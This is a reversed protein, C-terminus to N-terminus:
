AALLRPSESGAADFKNNIETGRVFRLVDRKDLRRRCSSQATYLQDSVATLVEVVACRGILQIRVGLVYERITKNKVSVYETNPASSKSAQGSRALITCHRFTGTRRRRPMAPPPNPPQALCNPPRLPLQFIDM